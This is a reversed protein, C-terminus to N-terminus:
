KVEKKEWIPWYYIGQQEPHVPILEASSWYRTRQEAYAIATPVSIASFYNLTDIQAVVSARM